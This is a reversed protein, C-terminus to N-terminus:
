ATGIVELLHRHPIDVAFWCSADVPEPWPNEALVYHLSLDFGAPVNELCTEIRDPSLINFYEEQRPNLFPLRSVLAEGDETGVVVLRNGSLWDQADLWEGTSVSGRVPTRCVCSWQLAAIASKSHVRAVIATCRLVSRGPPLQLTPAVERIEILPIDPTGDCELSFVFDGIATNVIHTANNM